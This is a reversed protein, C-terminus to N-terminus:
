KLVAAGPPMREPRLSAESKSLQRSLLFYKILWDLRGRRVFHLGSFRMVQRMKERMDPEYCHTPCRRCIPKPDYPCRELRVLAYDLLESCDSCLHRERRHSARCFTLVFKRLIDAERQRATSM